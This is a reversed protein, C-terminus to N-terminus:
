GVQAHPVLKAMERTSALPTVADQSGVILATPLSPALAQLTSRSDPRGMVATCGREFGDAARVCAAQKADITEHVTTPACHLVSSASSHPLLCAALLMWRNPHLAGAVDSAMQEVVPWLEAAAGSEVAGTGLLM